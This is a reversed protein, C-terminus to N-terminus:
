EAAYNLSEYVADLLSNPGPQDATLEWIM